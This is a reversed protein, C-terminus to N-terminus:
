WRAYILGVLVVIFLIPIALTWIELIKASTPNILSQSWQILPHTGKPNTTQSTAPCQTGCQFAIMPIYGYNEKTSVINDFGMMFGRDWKPVYKANIGGMIMYLLPVKQYMPSYIDMDALFRCARASYHLAHTTLGGRIRTTHKTVLLQPFLPFSGLFYVFFDPRNRKIYEFSERVAPEHRVCGDRFIVDDEFVTVGDHALGVEKAVKQHSRFCGITGARKSGIKKEKDTLVHKTPRYFDVIRCLGVRCFEKACRDYREEQGSLCICVCPTLFDWTQPPIKKCLGFCDSPQLRINKM